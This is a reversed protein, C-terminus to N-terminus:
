LKEMREMVLVAGDKFHEGFRDVTTSEDPGLSVDNVEVILDGVEVGDQGPDPLVDLVRMGRPEPNLNLGAGVGEKVYLVHRAHTVPKGAALLEEVKLLSLRKMEAAADPATAECGAVLGRQQAWLLWPMWGHQDQALTPFHGCVVLGRRARTLSVNLRRPDGTFGVRGEDNARVPSMLILEKERGQFGDVSSVEPTNMLAIHAQPGSMMDHRNPIGLYQRIYRTQAAYPTIIGIDSPKVDGGAVAARLLEGIAQAEAHNTYSNGDKLEEGEIPLFVIPAWPVPWQIGKPPTRGTAAVGSRLLGAYYQESPYAAIAPHMRYQIDLLLAQVGQSTLREFLSNGLGEVDAELCSVTAPLQKHDGVLAVSGDAHLQMLPVLVSLETAQGAEDVLVGKFRMDHMVPNAAGSCTSCVVDSAELIKKEEAWMGKDGSQLGARKAKEILNYESLHRSTADPRGVRTVNLGAKICGEVLNDVAINSDASALIPCKGLTRWLRMLHIATSTKGAGPPGQILTMRRSTAAKLAEFQSSNVKDLLSSQPFGSGPPTQNTLAVAQGGGGLEESSTLIQSLWLLDEPEGCIRSLADMQRNFTVRNSVRDVRCTKGAFDKVGEAKVSLLKVSIGTQPAFGGPVWGVLEATVSHGVNKGGEDDHSQRVKCTHPFTLMLWDSRVFNHGPPLGNDAILHLEGSNKPNLSATMKDFCVGQRMLVQPIVDATREVNAVGEALFERVAWRAFRQFYSTSAMSPFDILEMTDIGDFFALVAAEKCTVGVASAMSAMQKVSIIKPYGFGVRKHMLELAAEPEGERLMQCVEKVLGADIKSIKAEPDMEDKGKKGKKGKGDGKPKKKPPEEPKPLAGAALAWSPGTPAPPGKAVGKAAKRMQTNTQMQMFGMGGLKEAFDKAALENADQKTPGISQSIIACGQVRLTCAWGAVGNLQPPVKTYQFDPKTGKLSCFRNVVDM